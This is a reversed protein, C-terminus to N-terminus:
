QAAVYFVQEDAVNMDSDAGLSFGDSLPTIGGSTLVTATGAAVRKLGGGDPMGESWRLEDGSAQNVLKVERPRWGVSRVEKLSGTGLLSGYGQQNGSAM